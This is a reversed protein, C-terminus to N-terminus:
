TRPTPPGAAPTAFRARINFATEALGLLSMAPDALRLRVVAFYTGVLVFVRGGMGRTISHLVAFGMIAYAMALSAALIGALPAPSAPFSRERSRRRWCAPHSGADDHAGSRAM